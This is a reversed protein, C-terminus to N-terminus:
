VKRLKVAGLRESTDAGIFDLSEEGPRRILPVPLSQGSERKHIPWSEEADENPEKLM